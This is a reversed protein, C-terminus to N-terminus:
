LLTNLKEIVIKSKSLADQAKKLSIAVNKYDSDTRFSKIDNIENIIRHDEKERKILDFLKRNIFFEHTGLRQNTKLKSNLDRLEIELDEYKCSYALSIVNKLKQFCSYYSCHVSSAYLENEILLSAASINQVSKKLLEPM